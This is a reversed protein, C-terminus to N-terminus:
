TIVKALSNATVLSINSREPLGFSEETKGKFLSLFTTDTVFLM